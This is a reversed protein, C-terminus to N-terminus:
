RKRFAGMSITPWLRLGSIVDFYVLLRPCHGKFSVEQRKALQQFSPVQRSGMKKKKRERMFGFLQHTMNGCAGM